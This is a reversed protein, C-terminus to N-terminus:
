PTVTGTIHAQVFDYALDGIQHGIDRGSTLSAPFHVGAWLRSQGCNMEFTTWTDFRLALPAAPTVGPEIRSSGQPVDIVWNL